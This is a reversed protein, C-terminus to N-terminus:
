PKIIHRCEKEGKTKTGTLKWLGNKLETIHINYGKFTAVIVHWYNLDNISTTLELKRNHQKLIM